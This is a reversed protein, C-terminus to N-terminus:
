SRRRRAMGLLTLLGSFMLYAGAPLPVEASATVPDTSLSYHTGAHDINLSLYSFEVEGSLVTISIAGERDLWPIFSGNNLFDQWSFIHGSVSPDEGHFIQSSFPNADGANDYLDIQISEGPELKSDYYYPDDLGGIALHNSYTLNLNSSDSAIATSATFDAPNFTFDIQEGSTIFAAHSVLPLYLLTSLLITSLKRTTM